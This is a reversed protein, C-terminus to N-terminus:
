KRNQSHSSRSGVSKVFLQVFIRKFVIKTFLYKPMSALIKLDDSLRTEEDLFRLIQRVDCAQFLRTFLQAGLENHKSLVDLLVLDYWWYKNRKSFRRFDITDKKLFALLATTKKVTNQFTFGTSAKTWGGATGIHVIRQTNKKFFPYCTMPISGQEKAEIFYDKVGKKELYDIIATEYEQQELLDKSFLTYEVLAEKENLPLVYMFRTNGRQPLNFDMFTASDKTFVAEDTKVFWGIFHQKLLPYKPNNKFERDFPISNMLYDSSYVGASTSLKVGSATEEFGQVRTAVFEVNSKLEIQQWMSRYFEDGRIMKYRYPLINLSQGSFEISSWSQTIIDEFEDCGEKWYCWTRDNTTKKFEDVLLIRKDKFFPDKCMRYAMLLGSAGAGCIIYDFHKM